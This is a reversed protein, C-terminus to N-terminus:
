LTESTLIRVAQGLGDGNIVAVFWYVPNKHVEKVTLEAARFPIFGRARM